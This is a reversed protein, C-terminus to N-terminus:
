GTASATRDNVEAIAGEAGLERLRGRARLFAEQLRENGGLQGFVEALSLFAGPTHSEEEAAAVVSAARRDTPIIVNGAEDSGELYRSWAAIVLAVHEIPGGSQLQATLVPVIFKAMRDSGDVVQRALTDAIAESSFRAIM